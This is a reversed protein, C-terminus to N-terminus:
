GTTHFLICACCIRCGHRLIQHGPSCDGSNSSGGTRWYISHYQAISGIVGIILAYEIGIILLASTDLIAIIVAEIILGSLYRQIVTKTQSVISRVQSQNSDSFLRRIFEILIPQYFLLLFIYVPLLFLVVLGSGVIVLTQGLAATSMNILENLTKTIWAHIKQPDKNFYEAGDNIAQNIIASFKDVMAPWSESLRNVQSFILSSFALIVLLTLFLSITIAVVRNIRLRVLFNVLPHLVIAIIIAFVIPIIISKGIYLITVLAILGM